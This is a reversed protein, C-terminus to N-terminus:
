NINSDHQDLFADINGNILNSANEKIKHLPWNWWAIKLFRTIQDETFRKSIVQIPNGIAVSYPPINKSVVANAGIVSGDGISTNSLITVNNGIWVDNGISIKEAPYPPMPISQNADILSSLPSTTIKNYRHNGFLIFSINEGISTAKGISINGAGSQPPLTDSYDYITTLGLYTLAGIEIHTKLGSIQYIHNENKAKHTFNNVIAM